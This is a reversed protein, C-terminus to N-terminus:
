GSLDLDTHVTDWALLTTPRAQIVAARSARGLFQICTLSRVESTRASSKGTHLINIESVDEFQCYLQRIKSKTYELSPLHPLVNNKKLERIFVVWPSQLSNWSYMSIMTRMRGLMMM